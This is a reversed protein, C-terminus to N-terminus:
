NRLRGGFRIRFTKIATRLQRNLAEIANIVPIFPVLYRRTWRVPRQLQQASRLRRTRRSRGPQPADPLASGSELGVPVTVHEEAVLMGAATWRRRMGDDQWRKVSRQMYRGIEIM